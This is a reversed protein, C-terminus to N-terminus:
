VFQLKKGEKVCQDLYLNILNQYPIGSEDSMNKFYTITDTNINITIQQKNKLKAAYPNKIGDSFDYEERM